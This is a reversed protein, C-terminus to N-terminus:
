KEGKSDTLPIRFQEDYTNADDMDQLRLLLPKRGTPKIKYNLTEESGARINLVSSKEGELLAGEAFLNVTIEQDSIGKNCVRAIAETEKGETVEAPLDLEIDIFRSIDISLHERDGSILDIEKELKKGGAYIKFLYKKQPQLVVPGFVGNDDTESEAVKKRDCYITIGAEKVPEMNNLIEGSVGSDLELIPMLALCYSNHPLWYEGSSAAEGWWEPKKGTADMIGNPIGGTIPGKGKFASMVVPQKGGVGSIQCVGLPNQGFVWQFQDDAFEEFRIDNSYQGWRMAILGYGFHDCNLGHTQAAARRASDIDGAFYYVHWKGDSEKEIGMAMQGYPTKAAMPLLYNEAFVKTAYYVDWWLPDKVDLYKCLEILAMYIGLNYNVMKYQFHFDKTRRDFYFDGCINDEVQTYDNFQLKLMKKAIDRVKSVYKEDKFCKYMELSAYIYCGMDFSTSFSKKNLYEWNRVATAMSEDALAKDHKELARAANLLAIINFATAANSKDNNRYRPYKDKSLDVLPLIKSCYDDWSMNHSVGSWPVSGDEGTIDICFRTGYKLAGISDPVSGKEIKSEQVPSYLSYNAIGYVLHPHSWMRKGIDDLTDHYGGQVPDQFHCKEGCRLHKLFNWQTWGINKAFVNKGIEFPYSDVKIIERDYRFVANVTYVGEKALSSIDGKYYIGEWDSFEQKYLNKTLEIKGTEKNIVSIRIKRPFSGPEVNGKVRMIVSKKDEPHFGIQSLQLEPTFLKQNYYLDDIEIYGKGGHGTSVALGLRVKGELTKNAGGWGYHLSDYEVTKQIWKDQSIDNLPVKTLYTTDDEDVLKFELVNGGSNGRMYFTFFGGKQPIIELPLYVECWAPANNLDYQIKIANGTRGKVSDVSFSVGEKCGKKLTQPETEFDQALIDKKEEPKKERALSVEKRERKSAGVRRLASFASTDLCLFLVLFVVMIRKM